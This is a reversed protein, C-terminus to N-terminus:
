LVTDEQIRLTRRQSPKNFFKSTNCYTTRRTELDQMMASHRADFPNMYMQRNPQTTNMDILMLDDMNSYYSPMPRRLSRRFVEAAASAPRQSPRQVVVAEDYSDRKKKTRLYCYAVILIVAFVSVAGSAIAIFQMSFIPNGSPTQITEAWICNEEGIASEGGQNFAIVCIRYTSDKQLKSMSFLNVDPHIPISKVVTRDGVLSYFVRYGAVEGIDSQSWSLTIVDRASEVVSVKTPTGPKRYQCLPGGYVKPCTCRIQKSPPVASPMMKLESQPKRARVVSNFAALLEKESSVNESESEKSEVPVSTCTGGNRCPNPNCKLHPVITGLPTETSGGFIPPLATGWPIKRNAVRTTFTSFTPVLTRDAMKPHGTRKNATLPHLTTKVSGEGTVVPDATATATPIVTTGNTIAPKTPRPPKAPTAKTPPVGVTPKRPKPIMTTNGQATSEVPPIKPLIGPATPANAALISVTYTINDMGISNRTKCTYQGSDESSANYVVLSGDSNVKLHGVPDYTAENRYSPVSLDPRNPLHWGIRAAAQSSLECPLTFTAGISVTKQQRKPLTTITPRVCRFPNRPNAVLRLLPRRRVNSPSACTIETSADVKNRNRQLWKAFDSMHCDCILRKSDMTMHSLAPMRTLMAGDIRELPNEALQLTRIASNEPLADARIERLFNADLRLTRLEAMGTFVGRSVGAILNDQLFLEQLAPLTGFTTENLATIANASMDITRLKKMSSFVGPQIIGIGNDSLLLTELNHLNQFLREPLTPMDSETIELRTLSPVANLITAPIEHVLHFKVTQLSQLGQFLNAPLPQLLDNGTFEITRLKGLGRFLTAPVRHIHNGLIDIEELTGVGQFIGAPLATLKNNHLDVHRIKPLNHFINAPILEIDNMGLSVDALNNLGRFLNQPLLKLKNSALHLNVLSSLGNFTLPAVTEIQNSRLNLFQLRALNSFSSENITVIQNRSLELLVLSVLNHVAQPVETLQNSSLLLRSLASLADFATNAVTVIQNWGLNLMRLDINFKFTDAGIETIYNHSLDLKKLRPVQELETPTITNIFNNALLLVQTDAPLGQPISFLNGYRCDVQKYSGPGLSYTQQPSSDMSCRCPRPCTTQWTQSKTLRFIGIAVCAFLLLKHMLGNM